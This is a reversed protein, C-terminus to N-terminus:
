APVYGSGGKRSFHYPPYTVVNYPCGMTELNELRKKEEETWEHPDVVLFLEVKIKRHILYYLSQVLEDTLSPTIAVMTTGVPLFSAEKLLMKPFIARGDAKVLALAEYGMALADHSRSIKLRTFEANMCLLGMSFRSTAAHKMLSATLQVAKEFLASYPNGYSSERADMFFMFDNTVRTEFEKTKLSQTRATTKWHIRSLRDGNAYDRVGVVSTVDEMSRNLVYSNGTNRDNYSDWGFVAQPRPYVIFHAMSNQDLQKTVLGFLDGTAVTLEDLRYSGRPLHTIEYTYTIEKKWGPFLITKADKAREALPKPLHEEISLWTLPFWSQHRIILTVEM